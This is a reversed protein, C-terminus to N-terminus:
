ALCKEREGNVFRISLVAVFMQCIKLQSPLNFRNVIQFAVVPMPFDCVGLM